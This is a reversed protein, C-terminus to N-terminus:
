YSAAACVAKFQADGASENLVSVTCYRTEWVWFALVPTMWPLWSMVPIFTVYTLVKWIWNPVQMRGARVLHSREEVRESGLM